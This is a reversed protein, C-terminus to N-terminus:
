FFGILGDLFRRRESAYGTLLGDMAPTLWVMEVHDALAGSGSQDEGDIRVIRGSRRTTESSASGGTGIDVGGHQTRLHAAVAWGAEGVKALEQYPAGRLGQGSALLSLAELLNTKGSGNPGCLVVPQPGVKLSLGRYNRFGTLQLREVWSSAVAASASAVAKEAAHAHRAHAM